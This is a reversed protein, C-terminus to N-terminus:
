RSLTNILHFCDISTVLSGLMQQVVSSADTLILTTPRAFPSVTPLAFTVTEPVVESPFVRDSEPRKITVSATTIYNCTVGDFSLVGAPNVFCNVAVANIDSPEETSAVSLAKTFQVDLSVLIAVIM